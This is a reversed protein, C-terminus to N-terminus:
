RDSRHKIMDITKNYMDYRDSSTEKIKKDSQSLSAIFCPIITTDSQSLLREQKIM